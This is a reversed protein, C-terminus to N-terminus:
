RAHEKENTVFYALRITAVLPTCSALSNEAGEERQTDCDFIESRGYCPKHEARTPMAAILTRGQM